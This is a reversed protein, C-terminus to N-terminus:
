GQRFLKLCDGNFGDLFDHLKILDDCDVSSECNSIITEKETLDTIIEQVREKKIIATVFSERACTPRFINLFWKDDQRGLIEIQNAEYNAGCINCRVTSLLKKVLRENM